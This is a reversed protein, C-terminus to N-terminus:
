SIVENSGRAPVTIVGDKMVARYYMPRIDDRNTYDFDYLMWGLDHEGFLSDPCVYSDSPSKFMAPFERCGLCPQHYSQGKRIRRTIIDQIKGPNDRDPCSEDVTFYANIVYRVNKLVMSNRQTRASSSSLYLSSPDAESAVLVDLSPKSIKSKVENRRINSFMIPSCVKIDSINWTIGPHWYIAELIGRAASPTIVDYSVRETKMEPRSFCAYDGWIEISVM